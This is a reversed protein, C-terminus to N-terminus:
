VHPGQDTRRSSYLRSYAKFLRDATEPDMVQRYNFGIIEDRGYGSITEFGSNVDTFNGKLDATFAAEISNAFLGRYREESERLAEEARKHETIDEYTGLVGIVRDELDRLPVKSTKIWIRGGDPTDQPEEYNLKPQGTTVVERDDARYLDAQRRWVLSYDTDGIIDAPSQRGTDRAFNLNCGLYTSDVDKWFLRVPITDIILQLMKNTEALKREKERLEEDVKKRETIDRTIGLIEVLTGDADRLAAFTTETWITSGDKCYQEMELRRMRSPYKTERSEIEMEERYATMLAELSAPTMIKDLPQAMAEEVSYGRLRTVSPSIYTFRLDTGTTFIIDNANEALLRYRLESERLAEQAKMRETVERGIGHTEIIRGDKWVVREQIEFAHISGASDILDFEFPGIEEGKVQRRFVEAARALSQPTLFSAFSKGVIEEKKQFGGIRLIQDNAFKMNGQGDVVYVIDNTNEIVERYLRNLESESEKRHLAIEITAKLESPNVPKLLYGNAGTEKAGAILADDQHGTLFVIPMDMESRILHAAKIGDIRGPMIIDMLVIDPRLKRAKRVAEAGSVAKGAVAFGLEGLIDTLQALILKSDDVILIRKM